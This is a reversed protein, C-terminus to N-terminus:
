LLDPLDPLNQQILFNKMRTIALVHLFLKPLKRGISLQCRESRRHKILYECEIM